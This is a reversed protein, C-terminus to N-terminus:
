NDEEFHVDDINNTWDEIDSEEELEYSESDIDRLEEESPDEIEDSENIGFISAASKNELLIPEKQNSM